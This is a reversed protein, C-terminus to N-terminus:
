RIPVLQPTKYVIHFRGYGSGGIKPPIFTTREINSNNAEKLFEKPSLYREKVPYLTRM